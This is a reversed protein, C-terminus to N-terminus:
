KFTIRDVVATSHKWEISVTEWVYLAWNLTEFFENWSKEQVWLSKTELDAWFVDNFTKPSLTVKVPPTDLDQVFFDINEYKKDNFSWISLKPVTVVKWTISASNNKTLM